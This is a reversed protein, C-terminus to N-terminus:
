LFIPERLGMSSKSTIEWFMTVKIIFRDRCKNVIKLKSQNVNSPM